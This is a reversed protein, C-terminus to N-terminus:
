YISFLRTHVLYGLDNPILHSIAPARSFDIEARWHRLDTPRAVNKVSLPARSIFEDAVGSRAAPLV